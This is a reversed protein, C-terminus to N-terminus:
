RPASYIKTMPRNKMKNYLARVVAHIKIECLHTPADNSFNPFPLLGASTHREGRRVRRATLFKQLM